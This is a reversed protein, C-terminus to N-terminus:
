DDHTHPLTRQGPAMENFWFGLRPLAALGLHSQAAQRAFQLVPSLAPMVTEPLYLNEFRDGFFHSRRAQESARAVRFEALLVANHLADFPTTVTQHPAYRTYPM